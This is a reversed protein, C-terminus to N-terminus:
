DPQHVGKPSARASVLSFFFAHPVRWTWHGSIWMHELSKTCNANQQLFIRRRHGVPMLIACCHQMYNKLSRLRGLCGQKGGPGATLNPCASRFGITFMMSMGLSRGFLLLFGAEAHTCVVTCVATSEDKNRERGKGQL